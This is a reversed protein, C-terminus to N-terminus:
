GILRCTRKTITITFMQTGNADRYTYNITAGGDIAKRMKRDDCVEEQILRTAKRKAVPNYQGDRVAPVNYSYTLEREDKITAADVYVGPGVEQGKMENGAEALKGLIYPMSNRTERDVGASEGVTAGIVILGATCFVMTGFGALIGKGVRGM